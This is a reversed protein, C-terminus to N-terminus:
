FHRCHAEQLTLSLTLPLLLCLFLSFIFHQLADDPWFSPSLEMMTCDIVWHATEATLDLAVSDSAFFLERSMRAVGIKFPLLPSTAIFNVIKRYKSLNHVVSLPIFVSICMLRIASLLSLAGSETNQLERHMRNLGEGQTELLEREIVLDTGQLM